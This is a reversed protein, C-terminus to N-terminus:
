TVPTPQPLFSSISQGIPTPLRLRRRIFRPLYGYETFLAVLLKWPPDPPEGVMHRYLRGEFARRAKERRSSWHSEGLLREHM